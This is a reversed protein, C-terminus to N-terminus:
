KRQGQKRMMISVTNALRYLNKTVKPARFCLGYQEVVDFDKQRM